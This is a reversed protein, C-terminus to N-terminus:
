FSQQWRGTTATARLPSCCPRINLKGRPTLNDSLYLTGNAIDHEIESLMLQRTMQDLNRYDMGM